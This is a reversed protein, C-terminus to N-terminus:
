VGRRRLELCTPPCSQEAQDNLSGPEKRSVTTMQVGFSPTLLNWSGLQYFSLFDRPLFAKERSTKCSSGMASRRLIKMLGANSAALPASVHLEGAHGPFFLSYTQMKAGGGGYAQLKSRSPVM